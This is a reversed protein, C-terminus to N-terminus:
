KITDFYERIENEYEPHMEIYVELKDLKDELNNSKSMDIDSYIDNLIIDLDNTHTSENFRKLHKM